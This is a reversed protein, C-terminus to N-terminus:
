FSQIFKSYDKQVSCLPKYHNKKKWCYGNMVFNWTFIPVIRTGILIYFILCYLEIGYFMM